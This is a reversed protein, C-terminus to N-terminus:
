TPKRPRGAEQVSLGVIKLSRLNSPPQKSGRPHNQVCIKAKLLVRTWTLRYPTEECVGHVFKKSASRAACRRSRALRARFLDDVIGRSGSRRRADTHYRRTPSCTAGSGLTASM